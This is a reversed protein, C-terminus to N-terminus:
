RGTLDVKRERDWIVVGDGRRRLQRVRHEPIFDEEETARGGWEELGMWVLGAFRDEYGLDYEVGGHAPDHRLRNIAQAATRFKGSSNSHEQALTSASPSDRAQATAAGHIVKQLLPEFDGGRALSITILSEGGDYELVNETVNPVIRGACMKELEADTYTARPSRKVGIAYVISGSHANEGFPVPLLRSCVGKLEPRRDVDELYRVVANINNTVTEDEFEAQKTPSQAWCTCEIKLFHNFEQLFKKTVHAQDVNVEDMEICRQITTSITRRAQTTLQDTILRKTPTFTPNTIPNINESQYESLLTGMCKLAVKLVAENDLGTLGNGSPTWYEMYASYVVWLLSESGLFGLKPSFLCHSKAWSRLKRYATIFAVTHTSDLEIDKYLTDMALHQMDRIKDLNQRIAATPRDHISHGPILTTSIDKPDYGAPPTTYHLYFKCSAKDKRSLTSFKSLMSASGDLARSFTPSSLEITSSTPLNIREKLQLKEGVYEWFLAESTETMCVLHVNDGHQWEGIASVGTIFVYRMLPPKEEDEIVAPEFFNLLTADLSKVLSLIAENAEEAMRGAM